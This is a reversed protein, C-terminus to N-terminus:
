EIKVEFDAWALHALKREVWIKIKSELILKSDLGTNLIGILTKSNYIM